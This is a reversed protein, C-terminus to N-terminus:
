LHRRERVIFLAEERIDLPLAINRLQMSRCWGPVDREQLTAFVHQIADVQEPTYQEPAIGALADLEEDDYYVIEANTQLLTERECVLHEGCCGDDPANMDPMTEGALAKKQRQRERVEYLIAILVGLAIFLILPIM